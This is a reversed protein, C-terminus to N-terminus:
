QDVIAPNAAMLAEAVAWVRPLTQKIAAGRAYLDAPSAIGLDGLLARYGPSFQAQTAVPADAYFVKQCRSYTAVMWFIAERQDGHAILARSGDIAIPRANQNIDAAFFFPTKIISAAADFAAALATLHETARRQSMQTCGLLDLLTPYFDLRQYAALLDRAAGYRQRVTPNKLGAVLLIHTTVGAAFLWAMVQDHFPQAENMSQLNQLVNNRAHQCRQEVWRRNAYAQAVVAQLETLRGAPDAIIGPQRFSGALHYNGLVQEPSQVQDRPLYSVELLVGHYRFKGLKDAPVENEFVIMIDLDSTVPLTAETPLWNTSGHYFAGVFGPLKSGEDLIWQHAIAKAAKVLM